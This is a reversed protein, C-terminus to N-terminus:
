YDRDEEKLTEPVDNESSFRTEDNMSPPIKEPASSEELSADPTSEEDNIPTESQEPAEAATNKLGELESVISDLRLSVTNVAAIQFANIILSAACIILLLVSIGKYGQQKQKEETQEQPESEESPEEAKNKGSLGSREDNPATKDCLDWFGNGNILQEQKQGCHPCELADAELKKGCFKCFM